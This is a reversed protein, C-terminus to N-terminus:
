KVVRRKKKRPRVVVEEKLEPNKEYFKVVEDADSRAAFHAVVWRSVLDDVEDFQEIMYVLYQEEFIENIRAKLASRTGDDKRKLYGRCIKAIQKDKVVMRIFVEPDMWTPPAHTDRDLWHTCGYVDDVFAIGDSTGGGDESKMLRLLPYILIDGPTFPVGPPDRLEFDGNHNPCDMGGLNKITKRPTTNPDKPPRLKPTKRRRRKAMFRWYSLILMWFPYLFGRAPARNEVWLVPFHHMFM